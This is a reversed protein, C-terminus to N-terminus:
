AWRSPDTPSRHEDGFQQLLGTQGVAREVDDVAVLHGDVAQELVGVDLGDAEDAGRRDGLVDVLGAGLVALAHLGEAAGLVVHEHQGVGVEVHGGVGRDAGGVARGALPAHGDRDHEGALGDGVVQDGLDLVADGVDLDARGALVAVLHAREDGALVAVLHRAVDLPAAPSPAVTTTSPVCRRGAPRRSRGRVRAEDVVGLRAHLAVVVLDEARHEGDGAHVAVVVAEREDVVVLEAVARGDEGAVAARGALELEVHLDAHHADVHGDRHRDAVVAEAPPLRAQEAVRVHVAGLADVEVRAGLDDGAAPGVRAVLM